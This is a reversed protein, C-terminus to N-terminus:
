VDGINRKQLVDVRGKWRGETVLSVPDIVVDPNLAWTGNLHGFYPVFSDLVWPSGHKLEPPLGKDGPSDENRWMYVLGGDRMSRCIHTEIYTHTHIRMYACTHAYIKRKSPWYLFSTGQIGAHGIIRM